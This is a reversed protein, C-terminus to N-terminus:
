YKQCTSMTNTSYMFNFLIVLHNHFINKFLTKFSSRYSLSVRNRSESVFLDYTLIFHANLASELARTHQFNKLAKFFIFFFLSCKGARSGNNTPLVNWFWSMKTEHPLSVNMITLHDSISTSTNHKKQRKSTYTNM